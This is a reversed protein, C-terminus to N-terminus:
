HPTSWIDIYMIQWVETQWPECEEGSGESQGNRGSHANKVPRHVIPRKVRQHACQSHKYGTLSVPLIYRSIDVHFHSSRVSEM